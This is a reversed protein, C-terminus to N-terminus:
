SGFLTATLNPLNINRYSCHPRASEYCTAQAHDGHEGPRRDTSRKTEEKECNQRECKGGYDEERAFSPQEQLSQPLTLESKPVLMLLADLILLHGVTCSPVRVSPAWSIPSGLPFSVRM